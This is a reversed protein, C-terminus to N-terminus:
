SGAIISHYSLQFSLVLKVSSCLIAQFAPFTPCYRYNTPSEQLPRLNRPGNKNFGTKFTLNVGAPFKKWFKVEKPHSIKGYVRM